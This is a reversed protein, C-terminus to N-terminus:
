ELPLELLIGPFDKVRLRFQRANRPVDFVVAIALAAPARDGNPEIAVLQASSKVLVRQGLSESAVGAPAVLREAGDPEAALLSIESGATDFLLVSLREFDPKLPRLLIEVELFRGRPKVGAYSEPARLATVRLEWDGHVVAENMQRSRAAGGLTHEELWGAILRFEEIRHNPERFGHGERPFRVFKVTRGLHKLAQYMEMSNAIFTNTDEEGHLILVPTTIQAAYKAPSADLYLQVNEWYPKELYNLEWAPNDSNSWDTILSFIGFLSAAAKFRKTRGILHNTMFGGYSGGMVALRNEDAWGQAVAFDVGALLDELDRGGIDGRSAIGFSHGYASSGRFNPALVVWGRAAWVQAVGNASLTHARRAYPGGHIELLLPAPKGRQWGPPRVVIGEIELGDKSKWRAVEPPSILLEKVRPNLQTLKQAEAPLMALVLRGIEPLADAAEVVAACVDGTASCDADTVFDEDRSLTQVRGDAPDLRYLRNGTRVAAAFYIGNGGAPWHLREINGLFERTLQRPEPSADTPSIPLLFIEPQSFPIDPVRPALFALQASDPSWVPARDDGARRTLQRARRAAIELLWLDGRSTAAPTGEYNTHFVLWRGDPSPEFSDVGPDGPWLRESRRDELGIRWIERRFREADVIRVDRKQERARQELAAAAPQPERALYFIAKSDAAWRFYTVGEPARTLAFAEGGDTPLVWVQPRRASAGTDRAALFALWRGDPSWQPQSAGAPDFTLRRTRRAEVEVWWLETSEASQEFNNERVLYAIRKGDPSLRPSQPIRWRLVDEITLRPRPPTVPAQATGPGAPILWCLTALILVLRWM